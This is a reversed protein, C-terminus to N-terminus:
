EALFLVDVLQWGEAALLRDVQHAKGVAERKDTLRIDALLTGAAALTDVPRIEAPRTDALRNGALHSDAMEAFQSGTAVWQNHAHHSGVL